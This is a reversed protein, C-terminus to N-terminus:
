IMVGKEQVMGMWRNIPPLRIIGAVVETAIVARCWFTRNGIDAENMDGLYGIEIHLREKKDGDTLFRNSTITARCL